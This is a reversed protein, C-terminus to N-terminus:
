GGVDRTEKIKAYTDTQTHCNPCLIRLNVLENNTEDGDIHDLQLTLPKNNWIPLLGCMDCQNVKISEKLLKSKLRSSPILPGNKVLYDQIPRRFYSKGKNWSRSKIQEPNIGLASLRKRLTKYNANGSHSLNLKRLIGALSSADKAAELLKENSYTNFIIYCTKSCYKARGRKVDAPRVKFSSQCNLCQTLMSYKSRAIVDCKGKGLNASPYM